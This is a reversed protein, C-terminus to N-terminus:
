GWSNRQWFPVFALAPDNPDVGGPRAPVPVEAAVPEVVAVAAAAAVADAAVQEATVELLASDVGLMRCFPRLMRGLRPCAALHARMEADRLAAELFGARVAAESPLLPLLWGFGRPIGKWLRSVGALRQRTAPDMERAMAARQGAWERFTGDEIRRIMGLVRNRWRQIRVSLQVGVVGMVVCGAYRRMLVAHMLANFVYALRESLNTPPPAMYMGGVLVIESHDLLFFCRTELFKVSSPTAVMRSKAM